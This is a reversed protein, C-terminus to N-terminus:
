FRFPDRLAFSDYIKELLMILQESEETSLEKMFNRVVKMKIEQSQKIIELGKDTPKLVSSRMDFKSQEKKVLGSEFLKKIARSISTQERNLKYILKKQTMQEDNMILELMYLQERTLSYDSLEAAAIEDIKSDLFYILQGFRKLRKEEM